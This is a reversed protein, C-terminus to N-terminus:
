GMGSDGAEIAKRVIEALQPRVLQCIAEAIAEESFDHEVGEGVMSVRFGAIITNDAKIELGKRVAKGYESMFYDVVDKQQKPSLLIEIRSDGSEQRCYSEVVKVLMQKLTDGTMAQSIERSVIEKAVRSVADGVSLIVDRAAQELSKRGHETFLRADAEAKERIVGAENEAETVISKAEKRTQSVIKTAEAEAKEVGDKQIRDLLNQLEEAM